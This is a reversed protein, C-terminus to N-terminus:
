GKSSVKVEIKIHSTISPLKTVWFPSLSIESREVGPLKATTDAADGYRMGKIQKGIAVTDIKAGAYAETGLSFSQASGTKKGPTLKASASGDDYIQNQDGVQEAAKAKILASFDTKSVALESYDVKVTVTTQTAEADVTPDAKAETSTQTFSEPIIRYDSAAKNELDKQAGDKDKALLDAKAKDIDAATVVAVQKTTGGSMQGGTGKLKDSPASGVTYLTGSALNFDDGASTAAVPVSASTSGCIGLFPVAAPVAVDATSAFKKGNAATFITGAPLTGPNYCYNTVTVTGGAKTGIDKKGTAPVSATLDKSSTLNQGALIGKTPSSDKAQPDISFDFNVDVKSGKAYLTVHASKIFYNLVLLLVVTGIAAGAWLLRKQLANFDPVKSKAASIINPSSDSGLAPESGSASTEIPKRVMMPSAFSPRPSKNPAPAPTPMASPLDKASQNDEEGEIIDSTNDELPPPAAPLAPQSKLTAAVSLGVRGALHAATRDGTVLVLEKGADAAAKKLLKLNVISQLLTSRKPVVVKVSKSKLKLLKDIAATIEEDAELYIVDDNM